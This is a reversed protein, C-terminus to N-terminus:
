RLSRLVRMEDIIRTQAGPRIFKHWLYVAWVWIILRILPLLIVTAREFRANPGSAFFHCVIQVILYAGVDANRFTNQEEWKM